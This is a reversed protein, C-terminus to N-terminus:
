AAAAARPEIAALEAAHREREMPLSAAMQQLRAEVANQREATLRGLDESEIVEPHPSLRAREEDLDYAAQIGLWFEASCGLFRELKLAAEPSIARQGRLIEGVSTQPM